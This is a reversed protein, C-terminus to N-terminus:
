KKEGNELLKKVGDRVAAPGTQALEDLAKRDAPDASGVLCPLIEVIDEPLAGDAMALAGLAPEGAGAVKKAQKREKCLRAGAAAAVLGSKDKAATQVPEMNAGDPLFWIAARRIEPQKSGLLTAVKVQNRPCLPTADALGQTAELRIATKEEENAAVRALAQCAIQTSELSVEWEAASGASASTLLAALTRVSRQRVAEDRSVTLPLVNELLLVGPEVLCAGELAALVIRRDSDALAKALRAPGLRGAVRALEARDGREAAKRLDSLPAEYLGTRRNVAARDAAGREGAYAAGLAPLAFGLVLYAAFKMSAEELSALSPLRHM